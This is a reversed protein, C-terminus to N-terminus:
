CVPEYLSSVIGEKIAKLWEMEIDQVVRGIEDNAKVHAILEDRGFTGMDGISKMTDFSLTSLRSLVLNRIEEDTAPNNSKDESETM